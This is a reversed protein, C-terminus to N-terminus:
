GTPSTTARPTSSSRSPRCRRRAGRAHGPHHGRPLVGDDGAHQFIFPGFGFNRRMFNRLEGLLEPSNKDVFGVGLERARVAHETDRSQLLIPLDPLQDRVLRTFDLGAVPDLRGRRPFRVDSIVGLLYDKYRRLLSRGEEFSRALLIKPRARMRYNRDRENLRDALLSRIQDLLESYIIPLFSSYVAPQDEVVIIVRVLGNRTDHDVNKKDEVAKVMALLLRPDGTWLFVYDIGEPQRREAWRDAWSQADVRDYTLLVVPTGPYRVAIEEALRQPSMDSVHPTTVVLDYPDRRLQQLAKKASPVHSFNPPGTLDLENYQGLLRDSFRGEEELIFSDYASAVLLVEQVLHPMLSEYTTIAQVDRIKPPM